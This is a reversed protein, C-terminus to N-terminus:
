GRVVEKMAVELFLFKSRTRLRRGCDSPAELDIAFILSKLSESAAFTYAPTTQITLAGLRRVQCRVLRWQKHRFNTTSQSGIVPRVGVAQRSKKVAAGIARLSTSRAPATLKAPSSNGHHSRFEAARASVCDTAPVFGLAFAQMKRNM